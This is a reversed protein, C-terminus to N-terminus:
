VKKWVEKELTDCLSIVFEQAQEHPRKDQWNLPYLILDQGGREGPGLLNNGFVRQLLEEHRASELKLTHHISYPLIYNM